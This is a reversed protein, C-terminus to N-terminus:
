HGETDTEPEADALAFGAAVLLCCLGAWSAVGAWWPHGAGAVVWSAMILCAGLGAVPGMIKRAREADCAPHHYHSVRWSPDCVILALVEAETAEPPSPYGPVPDRDIATAQREPTNRM